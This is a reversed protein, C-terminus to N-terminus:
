DLQQQANLYRQAEELSAVLHARRMGLIKIALDVIHIAFTNNVVMVIRGTNPPMKRYARRLETLPNGRPMPTNGPNHLFHVAHTKVKAMEISEDVAQHYEAWSVVPAYYDLQVITEDADAWYAEIV